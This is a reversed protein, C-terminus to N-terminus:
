LLEKRKLSKIQDGKVLEESRRRGLYDLSSRESKLLDSMKASEQRSEKIYELDDHYEIDFLKDFYRNSRIKRSGKDTAIYDGRVVVSPNDQFYDYAIGPKRSMITFEPPFNLDDYIRSNIGKQKKMVYRATYACTEWTVETIIHFGYTWLKSIDKSIYYFYNNKFDRHHLQLDELRLGFIILHYHPRMAPSYEGCAYYRIKQEPFYARLRKIFLQLDRKVLPHVQSGPLCEPLHNDDYTLTLFINDTHYKAELMCRDAWQRSYELRCGICKGCPISIVKVGDVVSEQANYSDKVVKIIHKGTDPNVGFDIAKLPHYCSM